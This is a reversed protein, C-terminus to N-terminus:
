LLYKERMGQKHSIFSESMRRYKFRSFPPEGTSIGCGGPANEFTCGTMMMQNRGGLLLEDQKAEIKFGNFFLTGNLFITDDEIKLDLVINRPACRLILHRPVYAIDWVFRRDVFWQNDQIIAIWNDFEDFLNINLLPYKGDSTISVIDFNDVTLVRPTNIFTNSAINVALSNTQIKFDYNVVRKNHPNQKVERLYERSYEREDAREHDTPCLAVMESPVHAKIESWPTIHHIEIIPTGCIACGFNVEQRLQRRLPDPIDRQPCL